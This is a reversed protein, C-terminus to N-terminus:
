LARSLAVHTATRPPRLFCLFSSLPLPRSHSHNGGGGGRGLKYAVTRFTPSHSRKREGKGSGRLLQACVHAIVVELIAVSKRVGCYIRACPGLVRPRPGWRTVRDRRARTRDPGM